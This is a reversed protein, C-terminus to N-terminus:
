RRGLGLGREDHEILWDGLVDWALDHANDAYFLDAHGYETLLSGGTSMTHETVDESATMEATPYGSTGFGGAAGVYFIPVAVDTIHDDWDVDEVGPCQHARARSAALDHIVRVPMYPPLADVLRLWRDPDTFFLDTTGTRPDFTGAVYHWWEGGTPAVGIYLAMWDPLSALFVGDDRHYVGADLRARGDAAGYAVAVSSCYGLLMLPGNAQGTRTRILRAISMAALTHDVDRDVGWSEMFTFDSTGAPVFTWGADIGWVDVGRDALYMALSSQPDPEVTGAQLFLTQFRHVAAHTMFIAGRTRVPHYPHRERVVRHVGVQGYPGPGLDVQFEYHVLGNGLDTREANEYLAWVDAAPPALEDLVPGGPRLGIEPAGLAAPDDACGANLACVAFVAAVVTTMRRPGFM